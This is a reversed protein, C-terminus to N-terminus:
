DIPSDLARQLSRYDEFTPKKDYISGCDLCEMGIELRGRFYSRTIERSHPHGKEGCVGQEAAIEELIKDLSALFEPSLCAHLDIAM